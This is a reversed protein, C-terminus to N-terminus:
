EPLALHPRRRVDSIKQRINSLLDTQLVGAEDRFQVSTVGIIPPQSLEIAGSAPFGDLTLRWPTSILTRETRDECAARATAILGLIYADNEAGDASERLHHLAQALTGAQLTAVLAGGPTGADVLARQPQQQDSRVAVASRKECGGSVVM